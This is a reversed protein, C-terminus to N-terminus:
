LVRLKWVNQVLEVGSITLGYCPKQRPFLNIKMIKACARSKYNKICFLAPIITCWVQGCVRVYLLSQYDCNYARSNETWPYNRVGTDWLGHKGWFAAFQMILWPSNFILWDSANWCVHISISLSWTKFIYVLCLKKSPLPNTKQQPSSCSTISM